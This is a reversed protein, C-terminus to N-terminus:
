KAAKDMLDELGILLIHEDAEAAKIVADTFGSKSFLVFWSEDRDQRFIDANHRLKELAAPGMKENRWKCECFLYKDEENAILDIEIQSHSTPDTGWWRGIATCLLPLEGLANCALLYDRCIREFVLGMYHDYDPKIRKEWIIEYAGTEVLTRNSFVYRYWFRFMLDSIGYLTKRSSGKEEFPTEKYLIGLECLTNIYKLCKASEEGVKTSIENSRSAGGAIAEIIASYIGPEQVEQRLLLLPEEYLYATTRLFADIINEGFTKGPHAQLLYLPTGGFAGYLRLKDEASFEELFHASTRYDFTKMHLQATRRGFLPSKAGLVDKEMFGMYSGCLILFLRSNQLQHDIIHQLQSLLARNKRALYPFEDFVLILRKGQQRSLIYALANEWSSFPELSTEGYFKFVQSSFKELNMKDSSQEASYFIADKGKCFQNLLTTKGVRRRGYLVFMQFRDSAYMENLRTLENKRGIFM